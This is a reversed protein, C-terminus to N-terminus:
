SRRRKKEIMMFWLMKIRTWASLATIGGMKMKAPNKEILTNTFSTLVEDIGQGSKSSTEFFPMGWQSALKEGEECPIERNDEMDCKTGVLVYSLKHNMKDLEQKWKHVNKFTNKDCIDYFLIVGDAGRYISTSTARFREEGATDWLSLKVNEGKKDIIKSKNDVGITVVRDEMYTDDVFKKLFCSKGVGADGVLVIKCCYDHAM